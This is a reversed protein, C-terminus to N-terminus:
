PIPSVEQMVVKGDSNAVGGKGSEMKKIKLM